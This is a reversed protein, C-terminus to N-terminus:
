VIRPYKLLRHIKLELEDGAVKMVYLRGDVRCRVKYVHAHEHMSITGVVDFDLRSYSVRAGM